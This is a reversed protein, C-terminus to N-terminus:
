SDTPNLIGYGLTGERACACNVKYRPFSGASAHKNIKQPTYGLERHPFLDSFLVLLAKEYCTNM